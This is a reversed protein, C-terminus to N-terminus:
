PRRVGLVVGRLAGAHGDREQSLQWSPLLYLLPLFSPLSHLPRASFPHGEGSTRRRLDLSPLLVSDPEIAFPQGLRGVRFLRNNECAM